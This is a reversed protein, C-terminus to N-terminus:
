TWESWARGGRYVLGEREFQPGEADVIYGAECRTYEVPKQEREYFADYRPALADHLNQVNGAPHLAKWPKVCTEGKCSKLVFLLADLRSVVKHLAHGLLTISSSPHALLNNLQGPDDNLDYLEHVNNCWVSYYFNYSGSILRLVVSNSLKGGDWDKGEGLAFGWYEVNVHEHRSESAEDLGAETLPIAAGDFDERLSTGTLGLITPALDTHTTVIATTVNKPVGPGRIILPVNIDEEFGCEKGPQLRHQGIHYGNDSSYIIYTNDLKGARELRTVLGGVIEDVGQLARLRSRYFHDNYEVNEKSQRPLRQIWNVGSPTEPNFNATRPVKADPFVHVHREAPIPETFEAVIDEIDGELRQIRVNSHPAVPAVTLFFPAENELADELFGYAKEALVDVSHQGEYSVPSERNRQYTSNLYQYTFPDLLFDSGNFGKVYPSAYNEVTHANLLKGTYYTSYGAEQLWVPLFNENLGQSVFKPYGGYPPSVDTVNTNHAAKGTWLSVRSPCCLAVTCFHRTYFTGQEILHKQVFPMYSLSNLHLDQDDTLIFVINPRPTHPGLRAQSLLERNPSQGFLGLNLGSWLLPSRM